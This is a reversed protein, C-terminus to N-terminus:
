IHILSLSIGMPIIWWLFGPFYSSVALLPLVIPPYLIPFDPLRLVYPGALQYPQYFSGGALWRRVADLYHVYDGTSATYWLGAPNTLWVNLELIVFLLLFGFAVKVAIRAVRPPLRPMRAVFSAWALTAGNRAGDVRGLTANM